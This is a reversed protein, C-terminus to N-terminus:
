LDVARIKGNLFIDIQEKVVQSVGKRMNFLIHPLDNYLSGTGKLDSELSSLAKESMGTFFNIKSIGRDICKQFGSPSIGSGGHLVLPIGTASKLQELREFDLRPEGKYKGHSNGIAVALADIGTRDIFDRAQSADTYLAPNAASVLSGDENGGVAGLEAEVSVDVAHCYKVIEATQAINEEYSLSSGDFMVSTFGLEVAKVASEYSLGHDLNFAVPVSSREAAKRVAHCVLELDMYPFHVEAINLIVPSKKEEAADIVATLFELNIVNFAGVAYQKEYASRLLTKLNVLPM